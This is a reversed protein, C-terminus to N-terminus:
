KKVTIWTNYVMIWCATWIGVDVNTCILVSVMFGNEIIFLLQRLRFILVVSSCILAQPYSFYIMILAIYQPETHWLANYIDIRMEGVVRGSVHYISSSFPQPTAFRYFIHFLLFYKYKNIKICLFLFSKFNLLCFFNWSFNTIGAYFHQNGKGKNRISSIM